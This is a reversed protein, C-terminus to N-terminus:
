KKKEQMEWLKAYTIFSSYSQYLSEIIGVTGARFGREIFYSKIFSTLMVRLFRWWSMKPHNSSFRELAEADSWEITKDLMQSLDRHTYHLLYGDLIGIKGEYDPTEHLKGTWRKLAEKRFLREMEEINPWKRNMYFNQRLVKFASFEEKEINEQISKRLETTVREDADIYFIWEAKALDKGLNRIESFNNSEIKTVKANKELAIESTKDNSSNDIVIVEDCFAVSDIAEAIMKEENKAIIVASIKMNFKSHSLEKEM